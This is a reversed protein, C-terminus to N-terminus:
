DEKWFYRNFDHSVRKNEPPLVMYDGYLSHLNADYGSMIYLMADEFKHLEFTEINRKPQWEGMGYHTYAFFYDSADYDYKARLEILKDLANNLCFLATILKKTVFKIKSMKNKGKAINSWPTRHIGAWRAQKGLIHIKDLHKKAEAEIASIGDCPLIDIWVGVEDTIWPMVGTDVRTRKTDYVRACPYVMMKEKGERLEPSCVKYGKESVYSHIFRDYDPRPLQIDIDDDWPIFGDHRIAGLLTGGSLSYRIGNNICFEHVDKLIDLSVQQVEKKTMERM